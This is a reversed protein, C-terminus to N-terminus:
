QFQLVRRGPLSMVVVYSVFNNPHLWKATGWNTYPHKTLNNCEGAPSM